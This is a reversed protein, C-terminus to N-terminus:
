APRGPGQRRGRRRLHLADGVGELHGSAAYGASRRAASARVNSAPQLDRQLTRREVGELTVPAARCTRAKPRRVSRMARRSSVASSFSGAL